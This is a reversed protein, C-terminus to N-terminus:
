CWESGGVDEAALGAARQGGDMGPERGGRRLREHERGQAGAAQEATSGGGTMRTTRVACGGGGKRPGEEREMRVTAVKNKRKTTEMTVESAGNDM